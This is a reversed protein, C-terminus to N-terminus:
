TGQFFFLLNISNKIFSRKVRNKDLLDQQETEVDRLKREFESKENELQNNVLSREHELQKYRDEV